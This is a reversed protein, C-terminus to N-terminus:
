RKRQRKVQDVLLGVAGIAIILFGMLTFSGIGTGRTPPNFQPFVWGWALLFAGLGVLALVNNREVTLDYRDSPM